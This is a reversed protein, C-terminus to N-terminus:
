RAALDRPISRLCCPVLWTPPPLKHRVVERFSPRSTPKKVTDFAQHHDPHRLKQPQINGLLYDHAQGGDGSMVPRNKEAKEAASPMAVLRPM